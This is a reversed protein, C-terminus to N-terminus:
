KKMIGRLKNNTAVQFLILFCARPKGFLKLYNKNDLKYIKKIM